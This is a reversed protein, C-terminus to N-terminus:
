FQEKKGKKGILGLGGDMTQSGEPIEEIDCNPGRDLRM